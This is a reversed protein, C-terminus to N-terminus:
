IQIFLEKGSPYAMSIRHESQRARWIQRGATEEQPTVVTADTEIVRGLQDRYEQMTKHRIEATVKNFAAIIHEEMDTTKMLHSQTKNFDM